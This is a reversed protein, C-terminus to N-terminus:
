VIQSPARYVPFHDPLAGDAVLRGLARLHDRRLPTGARLLVAGGETHLTSAVIMGPELAAFPREVVRSFPDGRELEARMAALVDPDLKGAYRAEFSEFRHGQRADLPEVQVFVDWRDAVALIRSGFPIRDGRVGGPFGTGDLNEHHGEIMAATDAFRPSSALVSLQAVPHDHFQERVEPTPFDGLFLARLDADTIGLLGMDHLMAAVHLDFLREEDLGLRRGLSVAYRAVRRHHHGLLDDAQSLLGYAVDIMQVYSDELEEHARVLAATRRQVERELTENQKALTARAAALELHNKVRASVIAPVVPKTLYDIAGLELGHQEDEAEGLATVFIIPVDARRPSAKIRRCVEHGSLGPMMVDLLVLDPPNASEVIALARAGDTAVRVDYDGELIGGLITLNEPVDDVILM